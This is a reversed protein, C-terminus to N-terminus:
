KSLQTIDAPKAEKVEEPRNLIEHNLVRRIEPDSLLTTLTNLKESMEDKKYNEGFSNKVEDLKAELGFRLNQMSTVMPDFDIPEPDSQASEKVQALIAGETKSLQIMIPAYDFEGPKNQEMYVRLNAIASLIDDWRMPPAPETEVPKKDADIKKLAELLGGLEEHVIRRVDFTDAGDSGGGMRVLVRDQVLYTNEDDGYNPSKSAYGSDTYVSTVISIYFGQGSSDAPVRWDYKFRQGGKDSLNVTDIIADTYADRIVARVYLTDTDLHNPIQRVITFTNQPQLVLTM